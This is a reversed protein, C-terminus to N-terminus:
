DVSCHKCGLCDRLRWPLTEYVRYFLVTKLLACFQTLTLSPDHMTLCARDLFLSVKHGYISVTHQNAFTLL